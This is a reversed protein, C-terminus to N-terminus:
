YNISKLEESIVLTSIRLSVNTIRSWISYNFKFKAYLFLENLEISIGIDSINIKYLIRNRLHNFKILNLYIESVVFDFIDIHHHLSDTSQVFYLGQTQIQIIGQDTGEFIDGDLIEM